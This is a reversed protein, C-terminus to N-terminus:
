SEASGGIARLHRSRVQGSPTVTESRKLEDTPDSWVEAVALYGTSSWRGDTEECRPRGDIRRDDITLEGLGCPVYVNSLGLQIDGLPFAPHSFPRRDKVDGMRLEIGGGVALLGSILDCTLEVKADTHRVPQRGAFSQVEPFHKNFRELLIRALHEDTGVTRWGREDVAMLVTGFGWVSWDVMWLSAAAVPEDDAYLLLGPNSGVLVISM